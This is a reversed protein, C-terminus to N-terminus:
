LMGDGEDVRGWDVSDRSAMVCGGIGGHGKDLRSKRFGYERSARGQVELRRMVPFDPQAVCFRWTLWWTM